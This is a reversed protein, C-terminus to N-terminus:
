CHLTDCAEVNTRTSSWSSGAVLTQMDQYYLARLIIATYYFRTDAQAASNAKLVTLRKAFFICMVLSDMAVSVGRLGKVSQRQDKNISNPGSSLLLM